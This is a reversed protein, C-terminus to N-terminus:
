IGSTACQLRKITREEMEQDTAQALCKMEKDVPDFINWLSPIKNESFHLKHQMAESYM